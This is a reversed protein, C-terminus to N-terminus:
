CAYNKKDQKYFRRTNEYAQQHAASLQAYTAANVAFDSLESQSSQQLLAWQQNKFNIYLWIKSSINVQLDEYWQKWNESHILIIKTTSSMNKTM